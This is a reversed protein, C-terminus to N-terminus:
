VNRGAQLFFVIPSMKECLLLRCTFNQWSIGEGHRFCRCSSASNFGAQYRTRKCVSSRSHWMVLAEFTSLTQSFSMLKTRSESSECKLPLKTARTTSSASLYGESVFFHAMSDTLINPASARTEDKSHPESDNRERLGKVGLNLYMRGVKKPFHILSTTLIALMSDYKM